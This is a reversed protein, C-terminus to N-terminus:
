INSVSLYPLTSILIHIYYSSVNGSIMDVYNDSCVKKIVGICRKAINGCLKKYNYKRCLVIRYEGYVNHPSRRYMINWMM